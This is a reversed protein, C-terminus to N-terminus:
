LNMIARVIAQVEGKFAMHLRRQPDGSTDPTFAQLLREEFGETIPDMKMVLNKLDQNMDKTNPIPVPFGQKFCMFLQEIGAPSNAIIAVQKSPPQTGITTQVKGPLSLFVPNESSLIFVEQIKQAIAVIPPVVVVVVIDSDGASDSVVVASASDGASDVVASDSAVVDSDSVVVASDVVASGPAKTCSIFKKVIEFIPFFKATVTNKTAFEISLKSADNYLNSKLKFSLPTGSPSTVNAIFGEPSWIQSGISSCANFFDEESIQGTTVQDLNQLLSLLTFARETTPPPLLFCAPTDCVTQITHSSSIFGTSPESSGLFVLRTVKSSCALGSIKCCSPFKPQNNPVIGEFVGSWNDGGSCEDRLQMFKAILEEIHSTIMGIPTLVQAQEAFEEETRIKMGVMLAQVIYPLLEFSIVMSGITSVKLIFDMGACAEFLLNNLSCKTSALHAMHLPFSPADSKIMQIVVGIGDMKAHLAVPRTFTNSVLATMAKHIHDPFDGVSTHNASDQTQHYGPIDLEPAREMLCRDMQWVGSILVLVSGRSQRAWVPMWLQCEDMYQVHMLHKDYESGPIEILSATIKHDKLFEIALEISGLERVKHNIFYPLSMTMEEPMICSVLGKAPKKNALGAQKPGQSKKPSHPSHPTTDSLDKSTDKPSAM